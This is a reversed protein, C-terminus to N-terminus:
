YTIKRKFDDRQKNPITAAIPMIIDTSPEKQILSYALELCIESFVVFHKTRSSPFFLVYDKKELNYKKYIDQHITLYNHVRAQMLDGIQHKYFINDFFLGPKNKHETYINASYSTKFKLLQTYLPDGGLCLIAGQNSRKILKKLGFCVKITQDPKLVEDIEPISKIAKYEYGSAYQCPALCLTIFTSPHKQKCYKAIPTVWSALEGPSNTQLILHFNNTPTTSNKM